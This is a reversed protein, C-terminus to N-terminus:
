KQIMMKSHWNSGGQQLQVLYLGGELDEWNLHNVSQKLVVTRLLKGELTYLSLNAAKGSEWQPLSVTFAGDGPNPYLGFAKQVETEPTSVTPDYWFGLKEMGAQVDSDKMVTEWLLRTRHNEIMVVIPGQDIGIYAEQIWDRSDNFADYPGYPGFLESGRERYFYKLAKMSEAPTYPMSALAATPSVTGNDNDWPKHATYGDPDDSATLGWNHESYNEFNKPNEIAYDYHILSTNVYEDWYSIHDDNLGYPDIGLHSYHIWFMPGGWNPSVYIDHGYFRRRNFISGNRTWGETYVELPIGHDPSAAAMIYTVLTEMWGRIKMNMEFGGNPSWHWTLVNDGDQRYWDWEVGKWLADSKERIEISKADEGTFYHKLAILGEVVFSTEVLDGGDDEPSFPQTQKTDANYWHSWAGHHRDCTELFDLIMLIRDKIEEKDEYDREYAVIMAMLGMGTAGSAATRGNGNSRELAMGTAQHAGEWFYRFSYHQVMDMLEDDTLDMIQVEEELPASEQGQAKTAIRYTITKNRQDSPVFDMYSNGTSVTREQFSAGGDFSASIVYSLDPVPQTWRLDAHSDYGTVIFDQPLPISGLSKFAVVDDALFVRSSNDDESQNFVVARTKSFDLQSNAADGMVEDLPLVIRTWTSAPIDGNVGVLSFLRSETENSGGKEVAIFGMLPLASSPMGEASYIFFALTDLGSLDATSWDNRFIKVKWNGNDSSSYNFKLSSSGSYATTSCPMKDNWQPGGPPHTYEFDSDGLNAVDVIGQDYFTLDTGESFFWAEQAQLAFTGALCLVVFILVRKM